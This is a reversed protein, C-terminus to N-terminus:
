MPSSGEQVKKEKSSRRRRSKKKDDDDDDAKIDDDDTKHLTTAAMDDCGAPRGGAPQRWGMDKIYLSPASILKLQLLIQM